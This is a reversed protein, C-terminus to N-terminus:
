LSEELEPLSEADQQPRGWGVAPVLAREQLRFSGRNPHTFQNGFVLEETHRM